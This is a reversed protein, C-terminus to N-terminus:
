NQSFFEDTGASYILIKIYVPYSDLTYCRFYLFRKRLEGIVYKTAKSLLPMKVLWATATNADHLIEAM